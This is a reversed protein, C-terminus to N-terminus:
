LSLFLFETGRISINQATLDKPQVCAVAFFYFYLFFALPVEVVYSQMRKSGSNQSTSQLGPQGPIWETSWEMQFEQQQKRSTQESILLVELTFPSFNGKESWSIYFIAELILTSSRAVPFSLCLFPILLFCFCLLTWHSSTTLLLFAPNNNIKNGRYSFM